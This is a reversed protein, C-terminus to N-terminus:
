GKCELSIEHERRLFYCSYKHTSFSQRAVETQLDFSQNMVVVCKCVICKTEDQYKESVNLNGCIKDDRAELRMGSPLEVEAALMTELPSDCVLDCQGRLKDMSSKFSIYQSEEKNTTILQAAIAFGILVAIVGFALWVTQEM